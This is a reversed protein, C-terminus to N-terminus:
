EKKINGQTISIDLKEEKVIAEIKDIRNQLIKLNEIVIQLKTDLPLGNDPDELDIIDDHQFNNM